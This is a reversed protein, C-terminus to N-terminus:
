IKDFQKTLDKNFGRTIEIDTIFPKKDYGQSKCQIEFTHMGTNIQMNVLPPEGIDIDDVKVISNTPVTRISIIGLELNSVNIVLTGKSEKVYFSVEKLIFPKKKFLYATKNGFDFKLEQNTYGYPALGRSIDEKKIFIALNDPHSFKVMRFTPKPELTRISTITPTIPIKNETVTLSKKEIPKKTSSDTQIGKIPGTREKIIPSSSVVEKLLEKKEEKDIKQALSATELNKFTFGEEKTFKDITLGFWFYGIFIVIFVNLIFFGIFILLRNRLKGKMKGRTTPKIPVPKSDFTMSGFDRKLDDISFDSDEVQDMAWNRDIKERLNLSKIISSFNSHSLDINNKQAFKELDRQVNGATQYRKERDKELIKLLIPKLEGPIKNNTLIVEKVDRRQIDIMISFDSDGIFLKTGTLLEFFLTGLSFLDSRNDLSKGLIQEPSLYMIKGKITGTRTKYERSTAKAIGFDMLKVEGEFTIMVNKPTVDRHVINLPTGNLSKKRHAYDLAICIQIVISLSVSIDIDKNMTEYEKILDALNVGDVFEMAIYYTKEFQAFEFIKVINQHSLQATLKAEELFMSVFEPDETFHPLIMKFAVLRELGATGKEKALYVEGMGGSSIKSIIKYKGIKM